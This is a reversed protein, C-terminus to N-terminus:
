IKRKKYYIMIIITLATLFWFGPFSALDTDLGGTGTQDIDTIATTQGGQILIDGWSSTVFAIFEDLTSDDSLYLDLENAFITELSAWRHDVPSRYSNEIIQQYAEIYKWAPSAKLEEDEFVSNRAPVHYYDIASEKMAEFDSMFHALKMSAELRDGTVRNSIVYAHGGLPAGTNGEDDQPLRMIGLNDSSAYSKANSLQDNFEPSSDLFGAIEWPGQQIMAVSGSRFLNNLSTWGQEAWEPTFDADIIYKLYELGTRSPDSDIDINEFAVTENKFFRAGHGYYIPQGGFFMGQITFGYIRNGTSDLLNADWVTQLINEFETWTLSTSANFGSIDIGADILIQKNYMLSPGDLLQPWGWIQNVGNNDPYTVLRIADEVFDELDEATLYNTIPQIIDQQAFEVVWDRAARFVAPELGGSYQTLYTEKATFFGKAEQIIDIDPNENEFQQILALVGPEEATNETYWFTVQIKSTQGSTNVPFTSIFFLFILAMTIIISKNKM